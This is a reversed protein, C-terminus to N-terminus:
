ARAMTEIHNLTLGNSFGQMPETIANRNLISYLMM